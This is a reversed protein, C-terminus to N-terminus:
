LTSLYEPDYTAAIDAALDTLEKESGTLIGTSVLLTKIRAYRNVKGFWALRNQESTTIVPAVAEHATYLGVPVADEAAFNLTKLRGNIFYKLGDADQPLCKEVINKGVGDAFTVEYTVTRDENQTKGTISATFM